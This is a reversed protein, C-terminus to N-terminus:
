QVWLHEHHHQIEQLDVHLYLAIGSFMGTVLPEEDLSFYYLLGLFCTSEMFDLIAFFNCKQIIHM